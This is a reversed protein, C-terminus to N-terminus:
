PSTRSGADGLTRGPAFRERVAPDDLLRPPYGPGTRATLDRHHLPEGCSSCVVRAQTDHDCSTHHLVVPAGEDGALWRDGWANIAALVGFFDRGKDTLLYEHRVPDTQYARRELLGESELRRLRDTLTNRAIGLTGIFGDFRSEGYFVERLVLLTWADGLIDATRAISCPWTDFSTRRM